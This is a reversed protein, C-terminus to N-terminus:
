KSMRQNRLNEILLYLVMVAGVAAHFYILSWFEGFLDPRMLYMYVEIAVTVAWIVFGWNVSSWLGVAVIPQAISLVAIAMQWELVMIDFRVDTRPYGIALLWHRIAFAIFFLAVVKLFLNFLPSLNFTDRKELAADRM